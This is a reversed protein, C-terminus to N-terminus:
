NKFIRMEMKTPGCSNLCDISCSNIKTLFNNTLVNLKMVLFRNKLIQFTKLKNQYFKTRRYMIICKSKIKPLLGLNFLEKTTSKSLNLTRSKKMLINTRTDM